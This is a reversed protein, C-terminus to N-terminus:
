TLFYQVGHAKLLVLSVSTLLRLHERADDIPIGFDDKIKRIRYLVTNRHTYLEECTQKLSRASCLYHYLTECLETGNESDHATLASIRNDIVCCGSRLSELMMIFGLEEVTYSAKPLASGVVIDLARHAEAYRAPLDYLKGLPRSIVVKLHFERALEDFQGLDHDANLFMLIDGEYLFPHSAYFRYTIEDRLQNRGLYSSHYATLDILAFATPSFDALYTSGAQLEFRAQSDFRGDLLSILIEEATAHPTDGRSVEIYLQKAFVSQIHEFIDDPVDDLHGDTDVCVLYGTRVGACILPACRRRYPSDDLSIFIAKGDALERSEALLTGAEYSIEGHEVAQTFIQDSFGDASHHATIHFTDDILLIPCDLFSSADACLKASSDTSFFDHFLKNLGENTTARKDTM